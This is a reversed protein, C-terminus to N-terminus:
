EERKFITNIVFKLNNQTVPSSVLINADAITGEMGYFEFTAEGSRDAQLTQYTLGNAFKGLDLSSVSIPMHAEGRVSIIVSSGQEVKQYYPSLRELRYESNQDTQYVRAPEAVRLYEKRYDEDNVYRDRDFDEIKALLSLRNHFAKTDATAEVAAQLQPSEKIEQETIAPTRGYGETLGRELTEQALIAEPNTLHATSSKVKKLPSKEKKLFPKKSASPKNPVSYKPATKVQTPKEQAQINENADKSAISFYIIALAIVAVVGTAYKKM